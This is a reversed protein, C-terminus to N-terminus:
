FVGPLLLPCMKRAWSLFGGARSSFRCRRRNLVNRAKGLTRFLWHTHPRKWLLTLEHLHALALPDDGLDFCVLKAAVRELRRGLRLM